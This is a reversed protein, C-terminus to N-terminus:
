APSDAPAGNPRAETGGNEEEAVRAVAALSDGEALDIVKVGQAARGTQRVSGAKIRVIMGGTSILMLDDDEELALLGVVPGNRENAAIDRRGKGGRGQVRLAGDEQRVLYEALPTRKGFGNATVTLLSRADEAARKGAENILGDVLILEAGM